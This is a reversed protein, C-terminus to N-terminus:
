GNNIQPFLKIAQTQNNSTPIYVVIFGNQYLSSIIQQNILLTADSFGQKYEIDKIYNYAFVGAGLLIIIGMIIIALIKKDM